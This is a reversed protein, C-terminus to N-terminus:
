EEVGDVVDPNMRNLMWPLMFGFFAYIFIFVFVIINFWIGLIRYPEFVKGSSVMEGLWNWFSYWWEFM